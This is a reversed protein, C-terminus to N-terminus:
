RKNQGDWILNPFWFTAWLCCVLDEWNKLHIFCWLLFDQLCKQIWVLRSVLKFKTKVNLWCILCNKPILWLRESIPWSALWPRTGSTSLRPSPRLDQPWLSKVFETTSDKCPRMKWECFASPLESKPLRFIIFHFSIQTMAYTNSFMVFSTICLILQLYFWSDM